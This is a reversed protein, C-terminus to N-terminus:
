KDMKKFGSEQYLCVAMKIWKDNQKGHSEGLNPTFDSFLDMDM